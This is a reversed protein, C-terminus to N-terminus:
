APDASDLAKRAVTSFGVTLGILVPFYFRFVLTLFFASVSFAVLSIILATACREVERHNRRSAERKLRILTSGSITLAVLLFVLAPIGAEASAQLFSNHEVAWSVERGQEKDRSSSESTFSGAGVGFIPNILTLQTARKLMEIRGLKSEYAESQAEDRMLSALRQAVSGPIAMLTIAVVAPAGVAVVMRSLGRSALIFVLYAAALSVLAGRSGTKLILLLAYPMAGLFLARIIAPVKKLTTIYWFIPVLLLLQAALDNANGITSVELELRGEGKVMYTGTLLNVLGAAAMSYLVWGFARWSVVLGGILLFGLAQGQFFHSLANATGGRWSSFPIGVVLWACFLVYWFAARHNLLRRVGGTLLLGLVAPAGMLPPLYSPIHFKIAIIEHLFSFQVFIFACAFFLAIRQLPSSAEQAASQHTAAVATQIPQHVPLLPAQPPRAPVVPGPLVVGGHASPRFRSM